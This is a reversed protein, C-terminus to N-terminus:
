EQDDFKLPPKWEVLGTRMYYETIYHKLAGVYAM